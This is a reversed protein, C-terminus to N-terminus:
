RFSKITQLQQLQAQLKKKKETSPMVRLHKRFSLPTPYPFSPSLASKAPMENMQRPWMANLATQRVRRISLM